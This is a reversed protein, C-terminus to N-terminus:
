TKEGTHIYKTVDKIKTLDLKPKKRSTTKKKGQSTGGSIARSKQNQYRSEIQERRLAHLEKGERKENREAQQGVTTVNEVSVFPQTEQYVQHFDPEKAKCVSCHDPLPSHISQSFEVDNQCKECIFHYQPM